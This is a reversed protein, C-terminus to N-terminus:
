ECLKDKEAARSQLSFSEEELELIRKEREELVRRYSEDKKELSLNAHELQQGLSAIEDASSDQLQLLQLKLEAKEEGLNSIERTQLEAQKKTLEMQAAM